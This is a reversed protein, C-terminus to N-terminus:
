PRRSFPSVGLSLGARVGHRGFAGTPYGSLSSSADFRSRFLNYEAFLGARRTVDYRLRASTSASDFEVPAPAINIRGSSYNANLAAGLRTALQGGVSLSVGSFVVANRYAQVFRADRTAALQASWSGTVKYDLTAAGVATFESRGANPVKVVGTQIGITTKRTLQFPRSFDIGFDYGDIRTAFSPTAGRAPVRVEALGYGVYARMNRTVERSLRVRGDYRVANPQTSDIQLQTGVITALSVQTRRSVSYAVNAATNIDVQRITSIQFNTSGALIAGSLTGGLSPNAAGGAFLTAASLPAYQAYQGLVWSWRGRSVSSLSLSAVYSPATSPTSDPYYRNSAMVATGLSVRRGPRFYDLNVDGGAFGQGTPNFANTSTNDFLPADYGGYINGTAQLGSSPPRATQAEADAIALSCGVIALGILGRCSTM